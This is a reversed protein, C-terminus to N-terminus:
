RAGDDGGEIGQCTARADAIYSYIGKVYERWHIWVGKHWFGWPKTARFVAVLTWCEGFRGLTLRHTHSPPFSRVWPARYERVGKTTEENYGGWLGVSVFQKPHDHLDRSWDDGVFRHVYVACGFLRLVRWRYLYTPCRGHGNIEELPFLRGLLWPIM